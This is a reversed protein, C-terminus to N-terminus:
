RTHVASAGRGTPQVGCASLRWVLPPTDTPKSYPYKALLKHYTRDAERESEMISRLLRALQENVFVRNHRKALSAWLKKIHALCRNHERVAVSYLHKFELIAIANASSGTSRAEASQEWERKKSFMLYRVDVSPDLARATRLAQM